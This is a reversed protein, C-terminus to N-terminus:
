RHSAVFFLAQENEITLKTPGNETKLWLTIVIGSATDQAHRTLLFGTQMTTPM